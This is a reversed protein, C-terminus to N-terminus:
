LFPNQYVFLGLASVVAMVATGAFALGWVVRNWRLVKAGDLPGVPILNFAGFWGNIYALFLLWPAVVWGLLYTGAAAAYFVFAFSLNTMPGALSTLGWDRRNIESMGGVMTAGPIAWLFGVIYSMVLSLVLGMPSMRFEAWFGRRQAVVKHALEHAIFGTFGTAAAVLVYIWAESSLLGRGNTGLFASSGTLIIVLDLTIVAYAILIDRIERRSTTIRRPAPRAYSWSYTYGYPGSSTM